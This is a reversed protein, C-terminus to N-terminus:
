WPCKKSRGFNLADELHTVKPLLKLEDLFVHTHGNAETSLAEKLALDVLLRYMPTMVEGLALDYLLFINRGGKQPIVAKKGYEKM